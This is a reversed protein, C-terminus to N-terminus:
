KIGGKTDIFIIDETVKINHKKGHELDWKHTESVFCDKCIYSVAKVNCGLDWVMFANFSDGCNVCIM